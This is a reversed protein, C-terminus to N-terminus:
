EDCEHAMTNSNQDSTNRRGLMIFYSMSPRRVSHPRSRGCQLTNFASTSVVVALPVEIRLVANEIGLDIEISAMITGRARPIAMPCESLGYYTVRAAATVYNSLM